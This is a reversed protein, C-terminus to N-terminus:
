ALAGILLEHGDRMSAGDLHQSLFRFQYTTADDDGFLRGGARAAKEIMLRWALMFGLRDLLQFSAQETGSISSEDIGIDIATGSHDAFYGWVSKGIPYLGHYNPWDAKVYVRCCAILPVRHKEFSYYSSPEHLNKATEELSSQYSM